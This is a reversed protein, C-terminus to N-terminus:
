VTLGLEPGIGNPVSTCYDGYSCGCSYWERWLDDLSRM